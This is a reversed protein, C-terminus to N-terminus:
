QFRLARTQQLLIAGFLLNRRLHPRRLLLAQLTSTEGFSVSVTIPPSPPFPPLAPYTFENPLIVDGFLPNEPMGLIKFRPLVSNILVLASVPVSPEYQSYPPQKPSVFPYQPNEPAPHAGPQTYLPYLLCVPTPSLDPPVKLM